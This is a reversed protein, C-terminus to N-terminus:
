GRYEFEAEIPRSAGKRKAVIRIRYIGNGPMAYFNGYSVTGSIQMPELDKLEAALELQEVRASVKADTIRAGTAADFLAVVIHRSGSGKPPSGHMTSEPHEIPHARVIEAPIVGLYFTVGGVTKSLSDSQALALSALILTAAAAMNLKLM